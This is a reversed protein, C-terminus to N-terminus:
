SEIISNSVNIEIAGGDKGTHEIEEKKTYGHSRELLFRAGSTDYGNDEYLVAERLSHAGASRARTFAHFFDEDEELWNYLTNKTVGAIGACDKVSMGDRAYELIEERHKELLHPRGGDHELREGTETHHWCKGDSRCAPLECAEGNSEKIHGCTETM